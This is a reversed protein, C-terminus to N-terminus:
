CFISDWDEQSARIEAMYYISFKAEDLLDPWIERVAPPIYNQWNHVRSGNEFTCQLISEIPVYSLSACDISGVLNRLREIREKPIDQQELSSLYERVSDSLEPM